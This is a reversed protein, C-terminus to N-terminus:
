SKNLILKELAKQDYPRAEFRSRIHVASLDENNDTDNVWKYTTSPGLLYESSDADRGYDYEPRRLGESELREIEQVAGFVKKTLPDKEIDAKHFIKKIKLAVSRKFSVLGSEEDYILPGAEGKKRIEILINDKGKKEAEKLILQKEIASLKLCSKQEEEMASLSPSVLVVIVLCGLIRCMNMSLGKRM